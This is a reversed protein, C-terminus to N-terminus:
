QQKDGQSQVGPRYRAATRKRSLQSLRSAASLRLPSLARGSGALVPPLYHDGADHATQPSCRSSWPSFYGFSNIGNTIM